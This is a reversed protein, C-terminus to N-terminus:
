VWLPLAGPRSSHRHEPVYRVEGSDSRPVVAVENWVASLKTGGPTLM